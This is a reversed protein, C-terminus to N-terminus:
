HSDTGRSKRVVMRSKKHAFGSNRENRKRKSAEHKRIKKKAHLEPDIVALQKRQERRQDRLDDVYRKVKQLVTSYATTGMRNQALQMVEGALLRLEELKEEPTKASRDTLAATPRQAQQDESTRYLPSIMPMIYASQTLLGPPVMSMVAAFWRFCYTRKETSGRGRILETRALRGVKNILWVLSREAPLQKGRNDAAEAEAEADSDGENGSEEARGTEAGAAGAAAASESVDIASQPVATLYCKAIFYLNKVIQNGLEPSLYHSNLQVILLLSLERLRELSLLVYKPTGEYEPVDWEAVPRRSGDGAVVASAEKEAELMWSADAGAVYLGVLRAAALRVWAHPHALHRATLLWIRSQGADGFTSQPWAKIFRAFTTLAMYATEWYALADEQPDDGSGLTAAIQELNGIAGDSGLNLRSEAEKWTRLSVSLASDVTSLLDPIRKQFKDGLPEIIIGYCQLAARGLERMKVRKVQADRAADEDAATKRPAASNATGASWQDLLIWVRGMRPQDFRSVLEPLLHAAMERCKASDDQAIILVLGLFFPEAASPLLIENAFKSIIVGMVELASSRGSEFVYGTANQVIFNMANALRREGLPYDMLFQFWTLRCLERANAAQATIMLERIVDLLSYLSDVIMRRTLIARILSFATAQREPEEIDPRIFDILDRLQDEDLLSKQGQKAAHRQKKGNPKGNKEKAVAAEEPVYGEMLEEATKSRLLSALLKFANQIMESHTNSSQRFLAFLRKIVVPIGGAVSPLPLRVLITWIRCCLTIVSNYRSYLGNGTLDVFPDLLGLVEASKTDFRDRRLGFYVVELGFQVFRHANAQLYDRKPAVDKRLMHVTVLDDGTPRLRKQKEVSEQSKRTDKASKTSLALYQSIISHSFVLVTRTDYSRNRNLGISIRHLVADVVKTRKPTDTEQLIDRLPALMLRISDFKTISAMLEFCDPGHHVKAEKIKTTWGEADKEEAVQGFVDQMLIEVIPELTYDLDGVNAQPAIEKLLVYITYSLIHKHPGRALSTSLEKVLFGFYSVGLFKAIRVLTDRTINRASQAKARLMNCITTLVGPLQLQLTQEPLVSLLRTVAMAVPARLVMTDEDTDSIKKKLEPLLNHVLAEHIREAQLEKIREDSDVDDAAAAAADQEDEEEGEHREGAPAPAAAGPAAQDGAAQSSGLLRGMSDVKVHRLDFHFNDLIALVLRLLKKEHQPTKKIMGLYKRLTSNYQGWPLVAGLAGVTLISDNVLEHNVEGDNALVWHELFPLFLSRINAPSIPCDPADVSLPQLNDAGGARAAARKPKPQDEGEGEGESEEDESRGSEENEHAADAMHADGDGDEEKGQVSHTVLARFRRLARLRRHLQIHMINYFFNAEEDQNDLVLLDRLQDFHEGCERVAKRLVGLYESRVTEHKSTFAHKIAPLVITVLGRGLLRTEEADAESIEGDKGAACARSVRTIYRALSHAANARISMEDYDQAFYVVNHLIPVWARADLLEPKDWMEENLRAYAALRREFDPEGIRQASYSNIDEILAAANELQTPRHQGARASSIKALLRMIQTMVTRATPLRIRGFCTSVSDLYTSFLREHEEGAVTAIDTSGLVLPIFRLMISLVDAKTREPVTNNPRKLIPLLLGLLAQADKTQKTAYDAVRSLIHIQRMVVNSKGVQSGASSALIGTFCTNMHSLIQSVHSQITKSVLAASEEAMETSVRYKEPAQESAFDLFTQLVDLVLTVVRPQVKPAVLIDLLMNFTLPNYETLYSYYRPTLSWSKLLLLLASANQTNEVSLLDIRPDVVVEYICPMYPTFDFEPAELVFMETLCKVGLQRVSRAERKRHELAGRTNDGTGEGLAEEAADLAETDEDDDDEEAGAEDGDDDNASALAELEDKAVDLHRQASNISSLLIAIAEHFIPTAKFGLQKIMDSLLHFFSLQTKPSIGDIGSPVAVASSSESDSDDNDDDNDDNDDDVHMSDNPGETESVLRFPEADDGVLREAPTAKALVAEFSELGIAVFDRLEARSMGVIASLISVRRIKMGDKRSSKGNRVLTQGYLLRLLVPMLKARHVSNISEGGVSMDFVTLEDRFKREDLLNRLNDAYPKVEPEQWTLLCELALLQMASEGKALMRLFLSYLAASEHLARPRRFKSFLKLWLVCLAETTRRTRETMLGRYETACVGSLDVDMSADGHKSYFSATWRFDTKVFVFFMEVLPKSHSEASQAGVDTLMKLLQRQINTYDTREVDATSAAIMLYELRARLCAEADGSDGFHALDYDFIRDFRVLNPCESAHGDLKPLAAFESQAAWESQRDGLWKKAETTLGPEILLREDNFRKLAVWAASWFLNPNANALLGMQKIAEPWLLSFNVSLQALSIFPFVHSYVKPIRGSCALVAMRRLHNMKDKYTDIATKTSELEIATQIVSCIEANGDSQSSSNKSGTRSMRSDKSASSDDGGGLGASEMPPQDFLSLLQLTKLRLTPQASLLNSELVPMIAELQRTSLAAALKQGIAPDVTEGGRNATTVFKLADAISYMGEILAPNASHVPLITDFACCWLSLLKEAAQGPPAHLAADAELRMVRGLLSVLPYIQYYTGWYLRDDKPAHLGLAESADDGWLQGKSAGIDFRHSPSSSVHQLYNNDEIIRATIEGIASSLQDAFLGLSSLLVGSDISVHALMSLIASKITLESISSAPRVAADSSSRSDGDSGDMESDSDDGFGSFVTPENTPITPQQDVLVSWDVPDALWEILARSISPADQKEGAAAKKSGKGKGAHKSVAAINAPFLVQGRSTVVSSIASGKPKFLDHQFLEAWFLLLCVRHTAWKAVTLQVLYPLLIQSWQSWELRALTLAMALVSQVSEREFTTDLLVRGISVLETVNSQLLLGTLWKIREHTIMAALDDDVDQGLPGSGISQAVDFAMKCRQFLPKYDSVRSGKRIITANALLGLLACFPQVRDSKSDVVGRAQIDYETLLVSWLQESTDRKTYHLCLKLVSSVLAFVGNDELRQGSFEEKYLERLLATFLGSARSHLRSDVGRMCEFFLLAIGDRFGALRKPPCELLSHVVHETFKQLQEGRLKRILFAMSEAAFRRTHAKQREVGLLPSILNFTPRLDALLSKSLYKFLYALMNCAWEVIEPSEARILPM